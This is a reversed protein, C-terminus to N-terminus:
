HMTKEEDLSANDDIFTVNNINISSSLSQNHEILNKTKINHRGPLHPSLCVSKVKDRTYM